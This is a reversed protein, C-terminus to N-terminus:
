WLHEDGVSEIWDVARVTFVVYYHGMVYSNRDGVGIPFTSVTRVRVFFSGLLNLPYTAKAM